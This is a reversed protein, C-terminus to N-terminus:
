KIVQLLWNSVETQDVASGYETATSGYFMYSDPCTIPTGGSFTKSVYVAGTDASRLTITETPIERYLFFTKSGNSNRYQCTDIRKSSTSFTVVYRLEGPTEAILSIPLANYTDCSVAKGPETLLYNVAASTAPKGDCANTVAEDFVKMGQTGTDEALAGLAQALAADIEELLTEDQSYTKADNLTKEAEIYQKQTTLEKGANMMLTGLALTIRERDADPIDLALAKTYVELAETDNGITALDDGYGIYASAIEGNAIVAEDSNPFDAILHEYNEVADGYQKETMQQQASKLYLAPFRLLVDMEVSSGPFNKQFETLLGLASAFDGSSEQQEALKLCAEGFLAAFEDHEKVIKPIETDARQYAAVADSYNGAEMLSGAWLILEDYYAKQAESLNEAMSYNAIGFSFEDVAGAHDSAAIKQTTSALVAEIGLTHATTAMRPELTVLAEVKAPVDSYKGTDVLKELNIVMSSVKRYLNAQDIGEYWTLRYLATALGYQGSAKKYEEQQYSEKGAAESSTGIVRMGVVLGCEVILAGFGIALLAGIAPRANFRVGPRSALIGGLIVHVFVWVLLILLFLLNTGSGALLATAALIAVTGGAAILGAKKKGSAFYGIGYGSLNLFAALVFRGFSGKEREPKSSVPQAPTEEAVVQIPQPAGGVEESGPANLSVAQIATQEKSKNRSIKNFLNKM